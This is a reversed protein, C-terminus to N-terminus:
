LPVSTGWGYVTPPIARASAFFFTVPATKPSRKVCSAVAAVGRSKTNMM